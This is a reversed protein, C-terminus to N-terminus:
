ENPLISEENRYINYNINKQPNELSAKLKKPKGLIPKELNPLKNETLCLFGHPSWSLSVPAQYMIYDQNVKNKM